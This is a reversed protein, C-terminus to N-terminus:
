WPGPRAAARSAPRRAGARGPSGTSILRVRGRPLQPPVGPLHIWANVKTGKVQTNMRSFQTQGTLAPHRRVLSEHMYGSIALALEAGSSALATHLPKADLM